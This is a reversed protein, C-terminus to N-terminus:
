WKNHAHMCKDRASAEVAPTVLCPTARFTCVTASLSRWVALKCENYSSLATLRHSSSNNQKLTLLRYNPLAHALFRRWHSTASTQKIKRRPISLLHNFISFKTFLASTKTFGSGNSLPPPTTLLETLPSKRKRSASSFRRQSRRNFDLAPIKGVGVGDVGLTMLVLRSIFVGRSLVGPLSPGRRAAM